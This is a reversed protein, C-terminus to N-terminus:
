PSSTTTSDLLGESNLTIPVSPLAYEPQAPEAGPESKIYVPQAYVSSGIAAAFSLNIRKAPMQFPSNDDSPADCKVVRKTGQFSSYTYTSGTSSMTMLYM